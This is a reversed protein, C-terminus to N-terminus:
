KVWLYPQKLPVNRQVEANPPDPDLKKWLDIYRQENFALGAFLLMPRQSPFADFHMVDKAFPWKTKDALYPFLFKMGRQMNRGDSLTFKWLNDVPTSLIQCIVAFGELNFISYNYPKTRKLELPFSGDAAMQYPMLVNKFQSRCYSLQATDAVLHAFGAVQAIWWTGHNNKADREDTGYNHTTLWSLYEKFWRLIATKSEEDMSKSDCLFELSRAVELLHITDIIGTGRGTVRGKIAQAYLLHPNMKTAPNVFWATVHKVAHLAYTEDGTLKYAATLCSVIKAFHFMVERHKVFNDPNTMGDRQIYPGDPNNPDPWWYDGESFFDHIGGASRPSSYATITVPAEKLSIAAATLVRKREISAVDVVVQKMAESEQSGELFCFGHLVESVNSEYNLLSNSVTFSDYALAEATCLGLVGFVSLVLIRKKMQKM